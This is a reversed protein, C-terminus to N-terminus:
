MITRPQHKNAKPPVPPPASQDQSCAYKRHSRIEQLRLESHKSTVIPCTNKELTEASKCRLSLISRASLARHELLDKCIPEPSDHMLAQPGRFKSISQRTTQSEEGSVEPFARCHCWVRNSVQAPDSSTHPVLKCAKSFGQLLRKFDTCSM